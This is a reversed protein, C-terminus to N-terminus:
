WLLELYRRKPQRISKKCLMKCGSLGEGIKQSPSRYVPKVYGGTEDRRGKGSGERCHKAGPREILSRAGKKKDARELAEGAQGM